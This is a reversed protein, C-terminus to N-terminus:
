TKGNEETGNLPLRILFRTGKKVDISCEITGGLIQDVTNYVVYLGFGLGGSGRQMTFFPEFIKRRLEEPIGKGDDQYILVISDNEQHASIEILGKEGSAYAHQMSNSLLNSIVKAVAGPYSYLRIDEDVDIKIEHAPNKLNAHLSLVVENIYEHLFFSRRVDSSQDSAVQKFSRVLAAAKQLNKALIAIGESSDELHEEMRRVTLRKERYEKMLQHLAQELYTAATLAVGIPTNVEHAVGAVLGSLSALKEKQILEDQTQRLDVLTQSLEHNAAELQIEVQRRTQIEQELQANMNQLESNIAQLEENLALLEQTRQEVKAELQENADSLAAEHIRRETVDSISGAMRLPQGDEDRLLRGRALLWRYSGDKCLFRYEAQYTDSKGELHEEMVTEIFDRDEPHAKARWGEITNEIEDDEYGFLRKAQASFFIQHSPIAWDWVGVSSGALALRWREEKKELELNAEKLAVVYAQLEKAMESFIQALESIERTAGSMQLGSSLDASFDGEAMVKVQATLSQLPKVWRKVLFNSATALLLFVVVFVGAVYPLSELSSQWVEKKSLRVAAGWEPGPARAVAYFDNEGSRGSRQDMHFRHLMEEPIDTVGGGSVSQGASNFIVSSGSKGVWYARSLDTLFDLNLYVVMVAPGEALIIPRTLAVAAKGTLPSAIVDSTRGNKKVLTDLFYAEKSIGKEELRKNTPYSLLIKGNEDSVILSDVGEEAHYFAGLTKEMEDGRWTKGNLQRALFQLSQGVREFWVQTQMALSAAQHELLNLTASSTQQYTVVGQVGAVVVAMLLLALLLWLLLQTRTKLM